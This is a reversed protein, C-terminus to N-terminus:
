FFGEDWNLSSPFFYYRRPVVRIGASHLCKHSALEHVKQLSYGPYRSILGTGKSQLKCKLECELLIKQKHSQGPECWVRTATVKGSAYEKRDVSQRTPIKTIIGGFDFNQLTLRLKSPTYIGKSVINAIINFIVKPHEQKEKGNQTPQVLM